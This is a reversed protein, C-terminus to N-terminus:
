PTPTRVPLLHDTEFPEGHGAALFADAWEDPLDYVAVLGVYAALCLERLRTIEDNQEGKMSRDETDSIVRQVMEWTLAPVYDGNWWRYVLEREDKESLGSM